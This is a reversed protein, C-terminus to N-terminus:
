DYAGKEQVYMQMGAEEKSIVGAEVDAVIDFREM